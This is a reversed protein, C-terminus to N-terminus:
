SEVLELLRKTVPVFLEINHLSLSPVEKRLMIFFIHQVPGRMVNSKQASLIDPEASDLLHIIDSGVTFTCTM